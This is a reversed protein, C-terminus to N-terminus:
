KEMIDLHYVNQVGLLSDPVNITLEFAAESSNNWSRHATGAPFILLDEPGALGEAIGVQYNLQGALMFYFQDFPHFHLNMGSWPHVSAAFVRVSAGCKRDVLTYTDFSRGEATHGQYPKFLNIDLHGTVKAGMPKGAPIVIELLKTPEAAMVHMSGSPQWLYDYAGLRTIGGDIEYVLIAGSLVFLLRELDPQLQAQGETAINLVSIICSEIGTKTSALVVHERSPAVSKVHHRM